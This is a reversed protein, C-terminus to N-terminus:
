IVGGFKFSVRAENETSLLGSATVVRSGSDSPIPILKVPISDTVLMSKKENTKGGCAPLLLVIPLLFLLNRM